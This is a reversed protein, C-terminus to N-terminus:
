IELVEGDNLSKFEIGVEKLFKDPLFRFPNICNEKILGDHVPFAIKPKVKKAYEIVERIKAWPGAVPLALIGVKKEIELYADGPYFIKNNIFYGTNQVSVIGDYIDAHDCSKAYINISDQELFNKEGNELIEINTYKFDTELFNKDLIEKVSSNTIIKCKPNKELVKKLSEVHLHDAHEHTILILDLNGEELQKTTWGGPDTMIKKGDIEIVLCCHGIKKIKM